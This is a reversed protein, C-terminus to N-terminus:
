YRLPLSPSYTGKCFWSWEGVEWTKGSGGGGGRNKTKVIGECSLGIKRERIWHIVPLPGHCKESRTHQLGCEYHAAVRIFYSLELHTIAWSVCQSQAMTPGVDAGVNPWHSKIRCASPGCDTPSTMAKVLLQLRQDSTPLYIENKFCIIKVKVVM